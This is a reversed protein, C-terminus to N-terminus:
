KVVYAVPWYYWRGEGPPFKWQKRVWQETHTDLGKNGSSLVTRTSEINGSPAVKIEIIVLGEVHERIYDVPYDPPPYYGGPPWKHKPYVIPAIFKRVDPEGPKALPMRWHKDVWSRTYEDYLRAKSKKSIVVKQLSGDRNATITLELNAYQGLFLAPEPLVPSPRGSIEGNPHDPASSPVAPERQEASTAQRALGISCSWLYLACCIGIQALRPWVSSEKM